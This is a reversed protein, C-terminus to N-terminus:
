TGPGGPRTKTHTDGDEDQVESEAIGRRGESLSM